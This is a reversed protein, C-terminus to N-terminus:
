AGTEETQPKTETSHSSPTQFRQFSSKLVIINGKLLNLATESISEIQGRNAATIM